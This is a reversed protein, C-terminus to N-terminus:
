GRHSRTPLVPREGVARVAPQVTLSHGAVLSVQFMCSVGLGEEFSGRSLPAEVQAVFLLVAM